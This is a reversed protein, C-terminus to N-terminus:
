SVRLPTYLLFHILGTCPMRIVEDRSAEPTYHILGTGGGRWANTWRQGTRTENMVGKEGM